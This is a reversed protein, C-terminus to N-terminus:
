PQDEEGTPDLAASANTIDDEEEKDQLFQHCNGCYRHKVDNLNHSVRNCIHCRISANAVDITFYKGVITM